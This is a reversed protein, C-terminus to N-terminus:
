HMLRDVKAKRYQIPTIGYRSKFSKSLHSVDYFGLRQCIEDLSIEQIALLRKASEYKIENIYRLPSMGFLAKFRRQLTSESMAFERCLVSINLEDGLRQRILDTYIDSNESGDNKMENIVSGLLLCTEGICLLQSNNIYADCIRCFMSRYTSSRDKCIIIPRKSLLVDAKEKEKLTFNVLYTAPFVEDPNSFEALYNCTPPIYVISKKPADLIEGNASKFRVNKCEVLMLGGNPRATRLYSFEEGDRWKQELAYVSSLTADKIEHMNINTKINM